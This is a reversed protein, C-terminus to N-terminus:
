SKARWAAVAIAIAALAYAIVEGRPLGRNRPPEVTMEMAGVDHTAEITSAMGVVAGGGGNMARVRLTAHPAVVTPFWSQLNISQHEFPHLLLANQALTGGDDSVVSVTCQLADNNTEVIYLKDHQTMPHQFSAGHLLTTEGSRIALATPIAFFTASATPPDNPMGGATRATAVVPEDSRIRLAGTGNTSPIIDEGIAAVSWTGNPAVTILPSTHPSTNSVGTALFELTVHATTQSVNTIWLMTKFPHMPDVIRGVIPLVLERSAHTAHLPLAALLIAALLSVPLACRAVGCSRLRAKEMAM